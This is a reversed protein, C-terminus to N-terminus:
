ANVQLEELENAYMCKVKIVKKMRTDNKLGLFKGTKEREM